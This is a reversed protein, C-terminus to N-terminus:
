VCGLRGLITSVVRKRYSAWSFYAGAELAYKRKVECAPYEAIIKLICERLSEYTPEVIEGSNPFM